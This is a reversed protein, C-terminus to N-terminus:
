SSRGYLDEFRTIDDEDLYSGSQVEILILPTNGENSLRHKSGRPIYASENKELIKIEDDIEVKAKGDVIVWHESRQQHLQLSISANQKIELKKVQWTSGEEISTFNGWPRYTKKNDKGEKSNSKLLAQVTKKVKQTSDKNTVLIADKTEVVVLNSLNIGVILRGESRMYCNKSEEIIVKGKSSNGDKDKKSNKWISEWTGIDDWGANLSFVTGLKTKEMVAIDIPKNSCKGFIKENVRLFDIDTIGKKLSEHCNKIMEPEFKKLEQLYISAKFLFIGSNWSFTKDKFFKKALDLSPKEVFNKIKSSPNEKSIEQYSQIYGFGTEPTYPAIGFTVIRGKIAEKIGNKIVERFNREDEIKHDSSLVLLIPDNGCRMAKLAALAVAPATNRGFPELLISNPKIHIERMQEAVIFRQEENTIIIPNRLNDLGKLRLFTNQLLSFSNNENLNLYQKPYSARSLPWLRLGSGGSLIVPILDLNPFLKADFYDL